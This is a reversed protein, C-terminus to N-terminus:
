APGGCCKKYKRGSGCWCSENRGPPWPRDSGASSLEAAYAARTSAQVPDEDILSAYEALGAATVVSIRASYGGASERLWREVGDRHERHSGWQEGLEPWLEVARLFEAEPLYPASAIDDRWASEQDFTFQEFMTSAREETIRQVDVGEPMGLLRRVRARNAGLRALALQTVPDTDPAYLRLRAAGAEFWRLAQALEGREEFLEGAVEYAAWDRVGEDFVTDLLRLGMTEKGHEILFSAYWVRADGVVDGGDAIAERYLRGARAADGAMVWHDAAETLLQAREQPDAAADLEFQRAIDEPPDVDHGLDDATTSLETRLRDAEALLRDHERQLSRYEERESRSPGVPM